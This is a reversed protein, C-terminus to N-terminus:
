PKPNLIFMEGMTHRYTSYEVQVRSTRGKKPNHGVIQLTHGWCPLVDVTWTSGFAM